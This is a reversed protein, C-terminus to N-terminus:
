SASAAESRLAAILNNRMREHRADGRLSPSPEIHVASFPSREVMARYAKSEMRLRMDVQRLFEEVTLPMPKAQFALVWDFRRHWLHIAESTLSTKGLGGMGQVLTVTSGGSQWAENVRTLAAGRGVFM